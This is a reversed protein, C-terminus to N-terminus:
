PKILKIKLGAHNYDSKWPTGKYTCVSVHTANLIAWLLVMFVPCDRVLTNLIIRHSRITNM